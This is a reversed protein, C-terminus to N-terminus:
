TPRRARPDRGRRRMRARGDALEIPDSIRAAHAGDLAKALGFDLVKVTGDDRVKINAPKLDRHIIGSSTRRKSRRPSRRPSRCRRTRHPMAGQAIRDALTPGDVLELVLAPRRRCRRAGYIQAIHPHNLSALVQAERSFRALREPDAAVAPLLVKIAVDRNSRRTARAICRAWAAPAWCGTSGHNPGLRTGQAVLDDATTRKRTDTSTQEAASSRRRLKRRTPLGVSSFRCPALVSARATMQAAGADDRACRRRVNREQQVPGPADSREETVTSCRTVGRYGRAAVRLDAARDLGVRISAGADRGVVNDGASSVRATPRRRGALM